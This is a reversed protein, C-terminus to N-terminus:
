LLLLFSCSAPITAGQCGLPSLRRGHDATSSFLVPNGAASPTLWPLPFLETASHLFQSRRVAHRVSDGTDRFHM